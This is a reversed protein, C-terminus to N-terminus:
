FNPNTRALDSRLVKKAEPLTILGAKLKERLYNPTIKYFRIGDAQTAIGKYTDWLLKQSTHCLLMATRGPDKFAAAFYSAASHRLCNHPHPVGADLFLRSKSEAYQRETLKWTEETALALWEWINPELGDLYQRKKTKFIEPTYTIGRDEMNILGREINAATRFRTGLFVELALRPMQWPTFTMGYALLIEVQEVPLVRIAETGDAEDRTEVGRKGKCLNNPEGSVDWMTGLITLTRNFTPPAPTGNVCDQHYSEIWDVIGEKTLTNAKRGHHDKGFDEATKVQRDMVRESLKGAALRSEQWKRYAPAMDEVKMSLPSGSKRWAAVVDRWDADGIVKKFARFEEIERRTPELALTNAKRSRDLYKKREDREKETAFSELVKRGDVPYSLYWPRNPRDARFWCRIQGRPKRKTEKETEM